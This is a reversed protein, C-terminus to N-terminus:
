DDNTDEFTKMLEDFEQKDKMERREIEEWDVKGKLSQTKKIYERYDSLKPNEFTTIYGMVRENLINLQEITLIDNEYIYLQLNEIFFTEDGFADDINTNFIPLYKYLTPLVLSLIESQNYDGRDIPKFTGKELENLFSKKFYSTQNTKSKIKNENYKLWSKFKNIDINERVCEIVEDCNINLCSTTICECVSRKLDILEINQNNM